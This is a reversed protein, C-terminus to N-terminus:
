DDLPETRFRIMLANLASMWQPNQGEGKGISGHWSLSVPWGRAAAAAVFQERLRLAWVAGYRNRFQVWPDAPARRSLLLAIWGSASAVASAAPLSDFTSNWLMWTTTGVALMLFIVAISWRTFLFNGLGVGLLCALFAWRFPGIKLGSGDLLGEAYGLWLVVVLSAVLFHWMGILPRRAGLVAMGAAATATLALWGSERGPLLSCTLWALWGLGAWVLAHRITWGANERWAVALPVAGSLTFLCWVWNLSDM